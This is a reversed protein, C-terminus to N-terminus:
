PGTCGQDRGSVLFFRNGLPMQPSAYGTVGSLSTGTLMSFPGSPDSDEVVVYDDADATNTWTFLLGGGLRELRLNNVESPAPACAGQALLTVNRNAAVNAVQAEQGNPWRVKLLDITGASGLGFHATLESQSLYNDGSSLYRLQTVGGATVWVRSGMGDPASDPASRTDLVVRLWSTSPGTLDNRFVRVSEGNAFIVVDQDGDNDYDLNVMGRGEGYHVLGAAIAKETFTGNGNNMWLYSQEDAFPSSPNADGNTTALDQMGDHNFDVALPAWAYGGNDVGAAAAVETYVHNGQNLYLKNGTWDLDPYYISTVYWDFMGDANFDGVAQGMGNEEHSTGTTATIDTFTGNRNNRFYRTTGFDAELLLEPYDDENMDVWRPAFASVNPSAAFLGIAATVDTFTGNGNNRFLRNGANAAAFGGVFLDLDGDLDYDGFASGFGDEVAPATCLVGAAAAVDTFTGNGNNRYLKHKCPGISGTAGASTVYIDLWGDRDFDGVSAGKGKHVATLNWDLARDTFTGNGNNIYLKDRNNGALVFLDQFGDRNFDGAVGGGTYTWHSYGAGTVFTMAVGTTSTQDSFAPEAALVPSAGVRAIGAILVLRVWILPRARVHRTHM